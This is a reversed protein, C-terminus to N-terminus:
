HHAVVAFWGLASMWALCIAAPIIAIRRAKGPSSVIVISSVILCVTLLEAMSKLYPHASFWLTDSENRPVLFSVVPAVAIIFVIGFFRSIFFTKPDHKFEQILDKHSDQFHFPM